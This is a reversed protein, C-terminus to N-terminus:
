SGSGPKSVQADAAAQAEVERAEKESAAAAANALEAGDRMVSADGRERRPGGEEWTMRHEAARLKYLPYFLAKPGAARFRQQANMALETQTYDDQARKLEAYDEESFEASEILELRPIVRVRCLPTGREITIADMVALRSLDPRIVIFNKFWIYWDTELIATETSFPLSERIKPDAVRDIMTVWGPATRIRVGTYVGLHFPGFAGIKGSMEPPVSFLGREIDAVMFTVDMSFFLDWGSTQGDVWPKCDIPAPLFKNDFETGAYQEQSHRSRDARGKVARIVWDGDYGFKILPREM